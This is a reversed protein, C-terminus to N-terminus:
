VSCQRSVSFRHFVDSIISFDIRNWIHLHFTVAVIQHPDPLVPQVLQSQFRRLSYFLQLLHCLCKYIIVHASFIGDSDQSRRDVTRQVVRKKRNVIQVAQVSDELCVLSDPSRPAPHPLFHQKRSWSAPSSPPAQRAASARRLRRVRGPAQRSFLRPHPTSSRFLLYGTRGTTARSCRLPSCRWCDPPPISPM